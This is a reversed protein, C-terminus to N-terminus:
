WTYQVRSMKLLRSETIERLTNHGGPGAGSFTVAGAFTVLRLAGCARLDIDLVSVLLSLRLHIEGAM